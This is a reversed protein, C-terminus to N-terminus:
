ATTQENNKHETEENLEEQGKGRTPTEQAYDRCNLNHRKFMSIEMRLEKGSPQGAKCAPFSDHAIPM